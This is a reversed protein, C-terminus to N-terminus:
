QIKENKNIDTTLRYSDIEYTCNSNILAIKRPLKTVSDLTVTVANGNQDGFSLTLSGDDGNEASYLSEQDIAFFSALTSYATSAHESCPISIGDASLSIEGNSITVTHTGLTCNFCLVANRSGSSIESETANELIVSLRVSGTDTTLIGSIEAGASQYALLDSNAPSGCSSLFIFVTFLAIILKKM